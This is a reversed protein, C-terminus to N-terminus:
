RNPNNTQLWPTGKEAKSPRVEDSPPTVIAPRDLDNVLAMNKRYVSSFGLCVWPLWLFTLAAPIIFWLIINAARHLGEARMTQLMGIIALQIATLIMMAESM